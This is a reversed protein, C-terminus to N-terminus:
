GNLSGRQLLFAKFVGNNQQSIDAIV